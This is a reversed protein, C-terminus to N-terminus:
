EKDDPTDSSVEQAKDSERRAECTHCVGCLGCIPHGCENCITDEM